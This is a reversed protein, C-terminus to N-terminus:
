ESSGELPTGLRELVARNKATSHGRKALAFPGSTKVIGYKGKSLRSRIGGKEEDRIEPKHIAFILYEADFFGQTMDYADERSSFQPAILNSCAIKADDPVHEALERVADRRRAGEESMGFVFPRPGAFVVDQQLVAGFQFSTALTGCAVAFLLPALPKSPSHRNRFDLALILGPYVFALFHAGYQYAISFLPTYNPSLVTFLFGPLALLLFVPRSLPLLALPLFIQLLFILKEEKLLTSLTFVPNGILTVLVGRFTLDGEPPLGEYYDAFSEGGYKPMLWFKIAVFYALSVGTTILGVKPDTGTMFLYMGAIAVWLAVDERTLLTLVAFAAALALRKREYAAWAAFLLPLGFGIFHFEFVNGGHLAPHLLYSGAVLAATWPGLRRSALLYLPVAAGGMFLAQLSLIMEPTQSFYYIPLLFYVLVDAHRGFHSPGDPGLTVSAKFPNGHLTNWFINNKIGLDFSSYVSQHFVITYYSFYVVYAVTAVVVLAFPLSAPVAKAARGLPAAAQGLHAFFRSELAPAPRQQALELTKKAVFVLLATLALFTLPHAAWTKPRLLVPVFGILVLPSAREAVALLREPMLPDNRHRFAHGAAFAITLAVAGLVIALMAYRSGRDIRNAALFEGFPADVLSFSLATGLSFALLAFLVFARSALAVGEVATSTATPTSSGRIDRTDSM